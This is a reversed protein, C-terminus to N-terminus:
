HAGLGKILTEMRAAEDAVRRLMRDLQAATPKGHERDYEM